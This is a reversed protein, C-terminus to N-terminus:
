PGGSRHRLYFAARGGRGSANADAALMQFRNMQEESFFDRPFGSARRQPDVLPIDRRYLESAWYAFADSDFEVQVVEMGVSQALLKLSHPTHLCIHRPPDLEVWDAGYRMWPDSGALPVRILCTGQSTLLRKIESLAQRQDVMHELSHHLMILEFSNSELAATDSAVIRLRQDVEVGQKLYPDVGCLNTFGAAAMRYLLEGSGCGVDLVPSSFSIGPTNRIFAALGAFDPRPRLSALLAGLPPEGLIQGSNRLAYLWRRWRSRPLDTSSEPARFSYYDPPYYRGLDVPVDLLQLCGCDLCEHYHFAQRLGFMMERALFVRARHGECGWCEHDAAESMMPAPAEVM